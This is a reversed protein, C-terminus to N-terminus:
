VESLIDNQCRTLTFTEVNKEIILNRAKLTWRRCVHSLFRNKFTGESWQYNNLFDKPNKHTSLIAFGLPMTTYRLM